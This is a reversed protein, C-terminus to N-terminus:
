FEFVASQHGAPAPTISEYLSSSMFQTDGQRIILRADIVPSEGVGIFLRGGLNLQRAYRDDYRALPSRVVIADYRRETLPAYDARHECTLNNIGLDSAIQATRETFDAHIDITTVQAALVAMCAALYGSGTGYELVRDTPQLDLAQLIRGAEKPTLMAQGHDLPICYDAYAVSQYALPVFRNRPIQTMVSLVRPDLVDWTRVQQKVMQNLSFDSGM